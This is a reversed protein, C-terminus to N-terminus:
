LAVQEKGKAQQWTEQEQEQGLEWSRLTSQNRRKQGAVVVTESFLAHQEKALDFRLSAPGGGKLDKESSM